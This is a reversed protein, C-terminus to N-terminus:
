RSLTNRNALPKRGSAGGLNVLAAHAESGDSYCVSSAITNATVQQAASRGLNERSVRALRTKAARVPPGVGFCVFIFSRMIRRM